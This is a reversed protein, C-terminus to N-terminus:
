SNPRNFGSAHSEFDDDASDEEIAGGTEEPEPDTEWSVNFAEGQRKPHKSEETM